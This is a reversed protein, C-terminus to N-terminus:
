EAQQAKAIEASLRKAKWRGDVEIGIAEAQAVLAALDDEGEEEQESDELEDSGVRRLAGSKLLTKVFPLSAAEDPVEVAPNHGPLIKIKEGGYNVTILRAAENKLHM